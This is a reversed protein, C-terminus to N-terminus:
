FSLMFTVFKVNEVQIVKIFLSRNKGKGIQDVMEYHDPTRMVRPARTSTTSTIQQHQLSSTAEPTGTAEASTPIVATPAYNWSM